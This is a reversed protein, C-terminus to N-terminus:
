RCMYRCWPFSLSTTKYKNKNTRTRTRTYIAPDRNQISASKGGQSRMNISRLPEMGRYFAFWNWWCSLLLWRYLKRFLSFTLILLARSKAWVAMNAGNQLSGVYYTSVLLQGGWLMCSELLSTGIATLTNHLKWVKRNYMSLVRTMFTQIESYLSFQMKTRMPRYPDMSTLRERVWRLM